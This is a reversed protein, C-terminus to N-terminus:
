AVSRSDLFCSQPENGCGAPRECFYPEINETYNNSMCMSYIQEEWPQWEFWWETDRLFIRKWFILPCLLQLVEIQGLTCVSVLLPLAVPFYSGKFKETSGLEEETNPLEQSVLVWMTWSSKFGRSKRIIWEIPCWWDPFLNSMRLSTLFHAETVWTTLNVM